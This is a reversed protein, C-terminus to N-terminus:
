TVGFHWHPCPRSDGRAEELPMDVTSGHALKGWQARRKDGEATAGEITAFVFHRRIM